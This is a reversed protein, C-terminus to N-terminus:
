AAGDDLAEAYRWWRDLLSAIQSALPTTQGDRSVAAAESSLLHSCVEDAEGRTLAVRFLDSAPSGSHQPPTPVPPAQLINMLARTVDPCSDGLWRVTNSLDTRRFVAHHEQLAKYERAEM